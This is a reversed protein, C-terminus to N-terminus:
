VMLVIDDREEDARCDGVFVVAPRSKVDKDDVSVSSSLVTSEECVSGAVFDSTKPEVFTSFEPARSLGDVEGSRSRPKAADSVM